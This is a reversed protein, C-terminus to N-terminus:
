FICTKRRFTASEIEARKLWHDVIQSTSYIKITYRNTRREVILVCITTALIWLVNAGLYLLYQCSFTTFVYTRALCMLRFHLNKWSKSADVEEAIEATTMRHLGALSIDNM